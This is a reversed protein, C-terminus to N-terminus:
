GPSQVLCLRRCGTLVLALGLGLEMCCARSLAQTMVVSKGDFRVQGVHEQTAAYLGVCIPNNRM